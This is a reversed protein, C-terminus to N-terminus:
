SEEVAQTINIERAQTLATILGDKITLNQLTMSLYHSNQSYKVGSVVALTTTAGETGGGGAAPIEVDDAALFQVALDGGGEESRRITLTRLKVTKGDAIEDADLLFKGAPNEVSGVTTRAKQGPAFETSSLPPIVPNELKKCSDEVKGTKRYLASVTTRKNRFGSLLAAMDEPTLYDPVGFNLTATLSDCDVDFSQLLLTADEEVLADGLSPLADGLRISLRESLLTGSREALIAAALGAPVTEGSEAGADATWTYTKPKEATGQADTTLFDMTLYIKEERDAETSITASCSFKSVECHLGAAKIEGATAAAIRPYNAPSRTAESITVASEPVTALRPHRAKWWAADNLNEPIAETVSEFSLRTTFASGGRIQLTAYLCDPNSVSTDGARQHDIKHYEVGDTTGSSEIELDVGTVPHANYVRQRQATPVSALYAASAEAAPKRIVLVPPNVSYDFSAVATPFFRLERRIADAVTIDRCEDTPLVLTSVSIKAPAYAYGCAQAGHAAIECLAANLDQPSDSDTRNLVLRSSLELGGGTAWYQRFVHRSMKAWPGVCTASQTRSTGRSATDTLTEVAGRFVTSGKYDVRVSDGVALFGQPLDPLELTDAARSAFRLSAGAGPLFRTESGGRVRYFAFLRGSAGPNPERPAIASYTQETM